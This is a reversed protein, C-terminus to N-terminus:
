LFSWYLVKSEFFSVECEDDKFIQECDEVNPTVPGAFKYCGSLYDDVPTEWLQCEKQRYDYIFFTCRDPYILNCFLQCKEVGDTPQVEFIGNGDTTSNLCMDVVFERCTEKAWLSLPSASCVCLFALSVGIFKWVM